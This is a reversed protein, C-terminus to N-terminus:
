KNNKCGNDFEDLKDNIDQSFLDLQNTKGATEIVEDVLEQYQTSAESKNIDNFEKEAETLAPVTNVKKTKTNLEGPKKSVKLTKLYSNIDEMNAPTNSPIQSMKVDKDYKYEIFNKDIGLKFTKVYIGSGDTNYGELKVLNDGVKAFPKLEVYDTNEFRYSIGEKLESVLKKPLNPVLLTNNAQHRFMQDIFKTQINNTSADLDYIYYNLRNEVLYEHPIHSFFENINNKFGSQYYAYKVLKTALDRNDEFLDKWGRYLKNQIGESRKKNQLKIYSMGGDSIIELQNLLYNTDDELKYEALQKPLEVFLEVAPNKLQLAEFGSLSYAYYSSYLSDAIDQNLLKTGRIQQSIVNFTNEVNKNAMQFLNPNAKVVSDLWYVSNNVYHGLITEEGTTPDVLKDSFNTLAGVEKRYDANEIEEIINQAILRSSLDKGSSQTDPKAANIGQVVKKSHDQLNYFVNLLELQLKSNPKKIQADLDKLSLETISFQSKTHKNLVIERANRIENLAKELTAQDTAANYNKFDKKILDLKTLKKGKYVRDIQNYDMSKGGITLVQGELQDYAMQQLFKDRPDGELRNFKSEINIVYDVYKKIVPQGIFRNVYMPHMGARLMMAVPGNTQTVYNGDTIFPDKAIDVNGNLAASLSDAIKYNRVNEVTWPEHSSDNKYNNNVVEVIYKADEDNLNESYQRDLLTDGVENKHGWGIYTGLLSSKTFMGRVHDMMQNAYQGVGAKGALFSYKINIQNTVDFHFLDKKKSSENRITKIDKELHDHDIPTMVDKVVDPHLFVAKYSEILKNQLVEKPQESLPLENGEEDLIPKAYVLNGNDNQSFSPIMMFMKDIDFDSGTKTPIESYAVVADGMGEPLFGVIELADNSSLGQNPIRYGIINELIEPSIMAKLKDADITKWNPIYKTLLSGPLLVQGPKIVKKVSKDISEIESEIQQIEINSLSKVKNLNKYAKVSGATLIDTIIDLAEDYTIDSNNSEIEMAFSDVTIGDKNILSSHIDKNVGAKYGTLTRASATNIKKWSDAVRFSKTDEVGKLEENNYHDRLRGLLSEKKYKDGQSLETNIIHPPKLGNVPDVFWKVGTNQKDTLKDIGFNSVQIFSGGNTKIKVIRDKVISMFMNMLKSQAQPIGYITLEKELSKILNENINRKKAEDLLLKYLGEKNNIKGAEDIGLERSLEDVGKQSLAGVINNIDKYLDKGTIDSGNKTFLKEMNHAIGALVNKQIQSGTDTDKIGKTPLNQQLKWGRNDMELPTLNFDDLLTGDENHITDTTTAGVKIGDFTITEDIGNEVMKDYLRQLDTGKILGPLLVAQSYKLFTPVGNNRKFYVGKLPQAVAKIEKDTFPENSEGIMKPYASEHYKNWLGLRKVLFEWRAPTIWAQADTTNVKGKSYMNAIKEGAIEKIDALNRGAIEVGTVIAANFTLEDNNMLRLQLGDTYTSPIRKAYDVMNKYYAPDGSFMKSYEVNSILGNIYYDSVANMVPYDYAEYAKMIAGDIGNSDYGGKTEKNPTIISENTLFSVKDAIGEKLINHIYDKIQTEYSDITKLAPRGDDQYIKDAIEPLVNKINEFSLGEFIQSKFANGILKGKKHTEGFKNHHYHVYKKANPDNITEVAKIMRTYESSFYDYFVQIVKSPLVAKKDIIQNINTNLFYGHSLLYATSKDAPTPTNFLSQQGKVYALVRNINDVNADTKSLEGNNKPDSSNDDTKKEQFVNFIGFNIAKIRAEAIPIRIKDLRNVEYGLLYQLVKSSKNGPERYLNELEDINSKWKNIEGGLYSPLSYVWYSKKASYISSDSGDAKYFAEEKALESFLSQTNFPNIFKGYEFVKIKKKADKTLLNDGFEEVISLVNNVNNLLEENPIIVDELQGVYSKFGEETTVAGFDHLVTLIKNIAPVLDAPTKITKRLQDVESRIMKTRDRIETIKVTDLVNKDMFMTEFNFGWERKISNFNANVQSVDKVTHKINTKGSFDVESVFYPNKVLNFAQTFESKRNESLSPNNLINLLEKFYPKKHALEGIKDLMTQFVDEVQGGIITPSLDKLESILTNYIDNVDEFGYENFVTDAKSTAPLFSLFTWVNRGVSSSPSVEFASKSWGRSNDATEDQVESDTPEIKFGLKEFYENVNDVWEDIYVLSDEVADAEYDSGINRLTDIRAEMYERIVEKTSEDSMFSLDNWDNNFNRTFLKYALLQTGDQIEESSYIYNLGNQELPFYVKDNYKNRYFYKKNNKDQHLKPEGNDYINEPRINSDSNKWDGFDGLFFLIKM